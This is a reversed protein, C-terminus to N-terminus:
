RDGPGGVRELEALVPRHDSGVDPGIWCRLSRWGPGTLVHDIRAGHWRTFKTYGFGLGIENFANHYGSWDRRFLAGDGPMNFDGAIVTPGTAQETWRRALASEEARLATVRDLDSSGALGRDLVAEIGERPSRLHLGVLHIVGGPAELDGRLGITRWGPPMRPDGLVEYRRPPLRSALCLGRNAQVHWGPSRFIADRLEDSWEQLIVIDPREREILGALAGADLRGNQVNCTLVLLRRDGTEGTAFPHRPLSFGMLPGAVVAAAALLGWPSRPRTWLMVPALVALPLLWPWRPGYLLLTAAWWQDGLGRTLAAVGLAMTAYAWCAVAVRRGPRRGGPAGRRTLYATWPNPPGCGRRHWFGASGRDGGQDM